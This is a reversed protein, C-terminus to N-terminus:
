EPEKYEELGKHILDKVTDQKPLKALAPKLVTKSIEDYLKAFSDRQKAIYLSSKSQVEVIMAERLRRDIRDKVLNEEVLTNLFFTTSLPESKAAVDPDMSKKRAKYFIGLLSRREGVLYAAMLNTPDEETPIGRSFTVQSLGIHTQQISQKMDQLFKPILTPMDQTNWFIDVIDEIEGKAYASIEIDGYVERWVKSNQVSFYGSLNIEGFQWMGKFVIITENVEGFPLTRLYRHLVDTAEYPNTAPLKKKLTGGLAESSAGLWVEAEQPFFLGKHFFKIAAFCAKLRDLIIESTSAPKIQSFVVKIGM